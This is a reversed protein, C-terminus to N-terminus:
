VVPKKIHKIGEQVTESALLACKIRGPTLDSMELFKLIDKTKLKLASILTKGKLYETLLSASAISIACGSGEFSCDTIKGKKDCKIYITVSDGCTTNAGSYIIEARQIKRKNLPNKALDIILQKYADM